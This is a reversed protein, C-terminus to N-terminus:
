ASVWDRLGIFMITWPQGTLKNWVACCRDFIDTYSTVIRNLLRNNRMFQRISEVPNPEPAKAPLQV